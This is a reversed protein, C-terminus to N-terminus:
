AKDRDHSDKETLYIRADIAAMCGTGALAIAETDGNLAEGCYFVPGAGGDAVGDAAAKGLLEAVPKTSIVVSKTRVAGGATRIVVEPGETKIAAVDEPLEEFAFRELQQRIEAHLAGYDGGPNGLYRDVGTAYHQESPCSICLTSKRSMAAYITATLASINKGIVVIDYVHM